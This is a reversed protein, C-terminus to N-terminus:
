EGLPRDMEQGFCLEVLGCAENNEVIMISSRVFKM